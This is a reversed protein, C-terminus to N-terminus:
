CHEHADERGSHRLLLAGALGALAGYAHAVVIPSGGIWHQVSASAGFLLEGGVKAALAVLWLAAAGRQQQWLAVAGVAVLGHIVGSLGVYWSVEPAAALLGMGVGLATIASLAWWRGTSWHPGLLVAVLALAAANMGLHVWGLHVLHGSLLRWVQGQLVAARDYRWAATAAPGVLALVASVPLLTALVPWLGREDGRRRAAAPRVM